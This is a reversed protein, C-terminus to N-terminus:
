EHPIESIQPTYQTAATEIRENANDAIVPIPVGKLGTADHSIVLWQGPRFTFTPSLEEEGIGFAEAVKERDYKRPLRSVFYTHLNGMVQTDLMSARQTSIGIGLNFKRGRRAFTVCMERMQKTDQDDIESPIFLDAEDLLLLSFPEINDGTAGLRRSEYLENGLITCFQKLESDRRGTIIVTRRLEQDNLEQVISDISLIAEQPVHELSTRLRELSRVTRDIASSATPQQATPINNIPRRVPSNFQNEFNLATQVADRTIPLGDVSNAWENEILTLAERVAPGATKSTQNWLETRIWSSLDREGFAISTRTLANRVGTRIYNQIDHNNRLEHPLHLQRYLLDVNEKTPVTHDGNLNTIISSPLSDAGVHIYRMRKPTNVFKDIFLGLYEDNPDIIIVNPVNEIINVHNAIQHSNDPTSSVEALNQTFSSVLSSIFNSKGVGTFGFIGFHTTLLARSNLKINIEEFKKHTLPSDPQNEMEHNIIADVMEMNLPRIEAGVMPLTQEENLSPLEPATENYTFQWGTSIANCAITTTAHLPQDVQLEWDKKISRMSEFVHGPYADKGQAAYHIPLVQTLSLVSYTSHGGVSPSYNEVGILDGVQLQNLGLRTYQCAIEFEYRGQEDPTVRILASRAKHLREDDFPNPMDVVELNDYREICQIQV